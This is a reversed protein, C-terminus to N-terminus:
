GGSMQLGVGCVIAKAKGLFILEFQCDRCRALM